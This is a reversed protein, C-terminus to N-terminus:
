EGGRKSIWDKADRKRDFCYAHSRGVLIKGDMVSRKIERGSVACRSGDLIVWAPVVRGRDGSFNASSSYVTRSSKEITYGM